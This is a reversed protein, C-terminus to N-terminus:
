SLPRQRMRKQLITQPYHCRCFIRKPIDQELRTLPGNWDLTTKDQLWIRVKHSFAELASIDEYSFSLLRGSIKLSLHAIEYRSMYDECIVKELKNWDASKVMYWLPRTEFCDFVYDKFATVYILSFDRKRERLKRVIDLGNKEGFEIDLLLLQCCESDELLTNLLEEAKVFTAIEFDQGRVLLNESLLNEVCTAAEELFLPDDDGIVIRYM